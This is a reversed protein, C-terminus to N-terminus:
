GRGRPVEGGNVLEQFVVEAIAATPVALIAGVIGLLGAGLLLVRRVLFLAWLALAAAATASVAAAILAYPSPRPRRV